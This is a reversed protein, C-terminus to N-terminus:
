RGLMYNTVTVDLRWHSLHFVSVAMLATRDYAVPRNNVEAIAKNDGRLKYLAKNTLDNVFRARHAEAGRRSPNNDADYRAVLERELQERYAPNSNLRDLYIDYMDRAHEGRIGHIDIKNNTEEPSFLRTNPALDRASQLLDRYAPLDAPDIRQLQEKGGKGITHVCIRGSEDRVYDAKGDARTALCDRIKIKELESRRLGIIEAGRVFREFEPKDREKIGQENKWSTRSREITSSSRKPKAIERMNVGAAKCVPALRTHITSPSYGGQYLHREYEQIVDKNVATIDKIGNDKCYQAFEHLGKKYTSITTPNKIGQTGAKTLQYKLSSKGM